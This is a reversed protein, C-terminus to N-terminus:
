RDQSQESVWIKLQHFWKCRVSIQLIVIVNCKGGVCGLPESTIASTLRYHNMLVTTQFASLTERSFLKRLAQKIDRNRLGYIFPNLMPMVVTYMVSAIAGTSSNQSAASNFYVGLSTGYFLFVVSLHSGCTSFAKYKGRVSSIRLISAVIRSYSSLIGTLPVVGLLGSSLYMVLDNLFTDSCALQIVQKLECFFHFIEQDTCFSLRLILLDHLLSVLVSLLWSGLLLIGCFQGCDRPMQLLVTVCVYWPHAPVM